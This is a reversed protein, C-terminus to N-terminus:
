TPATADKICGVDFLVCDGPKVATDDPAHHPDAANAGFAVLPPFSYGDAGLSLYIGLMQDAVEQETVGEHILSKLGPWPRTMSTQLWM